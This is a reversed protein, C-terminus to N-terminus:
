PQWDTTNPSTIIRGEETDRDVQVELVSRPAENTQYRVRWENNAVGATLYGVIECADQNQARFNAGGSSEAISLAKEAPIHAVQQDLEQEEYEVHSLTDDRWTLRGNRADVNAWHKAYKRNQRSGSNEPRVIEFFGFTMRQPGLSAYQCPTSFLVQFLAENGLPKSQSLTTSTQVIQSFDNERWIVPPYGTESVAEDSEIVSTSSGLERERVFRFVDRKGTAISQLITGPDFKYDTERASITIDAQGDCSILLFTVCLIWLVRKRFIVRQYM